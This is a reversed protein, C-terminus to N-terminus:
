MDEQSAKKGNAGHERRGFDFLIRSIRLGKSELAENSAELRGNVEYHREGVRM